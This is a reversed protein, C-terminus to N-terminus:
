ETTILYNQLQNITNSLTTDIIDNGIEIKIGGLLKPEEKLELLITEVKYKQKIYEEIEKQSKTDLKGKTTVLAKLIKNEKNIIEELSKLIEEKKGLLNKEKIFISSKMIASELDGGKKDLTSEYIAHALNKISISAM